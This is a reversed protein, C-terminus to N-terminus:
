LFLSNKPITKKILFLNVLTINFSLTLVTFSLIYKSLMSKITNQVLCGLDKSLFM